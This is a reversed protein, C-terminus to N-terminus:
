CMFAIPVAVNPFNGDVVHMHGINIFTGCHGLWILFSTGYMSVLVTWPKAKIPKISM